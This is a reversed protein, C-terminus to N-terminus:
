ACEVCNANSGAQVDANLPQSAKCGDRYVAISKLGLKWALDYLESIEERTAHNPLNVTKSIAGSIFPQVAAMMRVHSEASLVRPAGVACLYVDRHEPKLFPSEVLHGRSLVENKIKAIQEAPYGLFKLSRLVVENVFHISGGGVLQKYKKLSFEPEIGTTASDLALSITGTPAIATAQANRLGKKQTRLLIEKWNKSSQHWLSEMAPSKKLDQHAQSHKKLVKLVSKRNKSFQAFSGIKEAIRTSTLYAESTMLSSIMGAWERAEHSDYSLGLAMVFSGLNTFGLGLPRYDHSNKAIKETPYGAYDILIDQALFVIRVTHCFGDLDFQGKENLFQLLNLSALNCASDDVFMYESCPNSGRIRSTEACMHWDQITDEFQLGPDACTWTADVLEDWLKKASVSKRARSSKREKLFWEGGSQKAKIFENTVRVSNNANQGGVTQYADGEFHSSYGQQILARAKLEERKKWHIFDEIEPHDMDVCVMKAARRTTGGSRIAGAGRDFVELFSLLGSSQGGFALAEGRGRLASFNTGSGSGFKFVRAENKLLEFISDLSDDVSQIFCASCQPREYANTYLEVKKKKPNWAFLSHDSELKYAEYVGANFWVPSNFFARQSLLIWTLERHFVDAEKKSSFYGQRRGSATIASVVREVMQFVSSEGRKKKWRKFYKEAVIQVALDSWHAPAEVWEGQPLRRKQMRFYKKVNSKESTFYSKVM